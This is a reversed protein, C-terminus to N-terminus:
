AKTYFNSIMVEGLDGANKAGTVGTYHAVVINGSTAATLRGSAGVMLEQGNTYTAAALAWLYEQGPELLYAVGTDGSVYATLLPETANYFGANSSHFDRNALLALRVASASTAQSFQTATVNVATCPLLAGNVTRDSITKPQRDAPGRYARQPM